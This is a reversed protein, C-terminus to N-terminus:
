AAVGQGARLAQLMDNLDQGEQEPMWLAPRRGQRYLRTAAEMAAEVGFRRWVARDRRDVRQLMLKAHDYDVLLVPRTVIQPLDISKMGSTSLAAWAPYGFDLASVSTEVGEGIRLDACAEALRVAGGRIDGLGLKVGEGAELGEAAGAKPWVGNVPARGLYIRWIGRHRRDGRQVACVLAPLSVQLWPHPLAGHFRLTPPLASRIGRGRLYAEAPTGGIPVAARWLDLARRVRKELHEAEEAARLRRFRAFKEGEARQDAERQRQAAGQAAADMPVRTRAAAGIWDSVDVGAMGAARQVAEIFGLGERAELWGFVDGHAGCGFCHYFGKGDHVTFSARRERHFPCLGMQEAGKRVLRVQRAVVGSLAVRQRILELIHPPISM